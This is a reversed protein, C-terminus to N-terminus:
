RRCGHRATSQSPTYTRCCRLHSPSGFSRWPRIRLSSTVRSPISYQGLNMRDSFVGASHRCLIRLSESMVTPAAELGVAEPDQNMAKAEVWQLQSLVHSGSKSFGEAPDASEINYAKLPVQAFIKEEEGTNMSTLLGFIYNREKNDSFVLHMTSMKFRRDKMEERFRLIMSPAQDPETAYAFNLPEQDTGIDHNVYSVTRNKSPTVLVLRYGRHLMRKGTGESSRDFKEFLHLRSGRVLDPPFAGPNTPDKYAGERLTTVSALREDGRARIHGEVRNTHDVINWLSRFDPELLDINLVFGHRLQVSFGFVKSRWHVDKWTAGHDASPGIIINILETQTSIVAKVHFDDRSRLVSVVVPLAVRDTNPDDTSLSAKAFMRFYCFHTKTDSVPMYMSASLPKQVGNSLVVKSPGAGLIIAADPAFKPYQEWIDQQQGQILAQTPPMSQHRKMSGLLLKLSSMIADHAEYTEASSLDGADRAAQAQTEIQQDGYRKLGPHNRVVETLIWWTKALDVHAQILREPQPEASKPRSRIATEMGARGKLFWWSAVRLWVAPSHDYIQGNLQSMLQFVGRMHEIREGFDNFALNAQIKTDSRALSTAPPPDQRPRLPVQSTPPSAPKTPTQTPLHRHPPPVPPQEARPPLIYSPREFQPPTPVISSQSLASFPQKELISPTQQISNTTAASPPEPAGMPSGRTRSAASSVNASSSSSPRPDTDLPFTGPPMPRRGPSPGRARSRYPDEAELPRQPSDSPLIPEHTALRPPTKGALTPVTSPPTGVQFNSSQISSPQFSSNSSDSDRKTHSAARQAAEHLAQGEESRMKQMVRASFSNPDALESQLYREALLAKTDLPSDAETGQLEPRRPVAPIAPISEDDSDGAKESWGTQTRQLPKPRFEEEEEQHTPPVDPLKKSLVPSKNESEFSYASDVSPRRPDQTEQMDFGTPARTLPKPREGLGMPGLRQPPPPPPSAHTNISGVELKQRLPPSLEGGSTLTRTVIGRKAAEANDSQMGNFRPSRTNLNMDDQHSQAALKDVESLSNSKRRNYVEISPEECEDGGEGIVTPQTRVFSVTLGKKRTGTKLGGIAPSRSAASGIVDSAGPWRQASAVDIRPKNASAVFAAAAAEKRAQAVETSPKLFDNVDENLRFSSQTKPKPDKPPADDDRSFIKARWRSKFASKTDHADVM